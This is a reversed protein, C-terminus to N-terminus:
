HTLGTASSQAANLGHAEGVSGHLPDALPQLGDSNPEFKDKEKKWLGKPALLSTHQLAM